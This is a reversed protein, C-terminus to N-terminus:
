QFGPQRSFRNIVQQAADNSNLVEALSWEHKTSFDKLERGLDVLVAEAEAPSLLGFHLIDFCRGVRLLAPDISKLSSLNTAFVLKKNKHKVVGDTANLISAMLLNGEDRARMQDDIDEYAMLNSDNRFFYKILQPDDVVDQDFALLPDKGVMAFMTRIFTTKGTGPPGFLVLVSEDSAMFADFYAKLDMTLWPYFSNSALTPSDQDLEAWEVNFGGMSGKTTTGITVKNPNKKDEYEKLVAEAELMKEMSGTMNLWITDASRDIEVVNQVVGEDDTFVFHQFEGGVMLKYGAAQLKEAIAEGTSKTEEVHISPRKSETELGRAARDLVVFSRLEAGEGPNTVRAILHDILSKNLM